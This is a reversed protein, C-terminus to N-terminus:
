AGPFDQISLEVAISQRESTLLGLPAVGIIAPAAGPHFASLLGDEILLIADSITMSGIEAVGDLDYVEFWDWLKDSLLEIEPSFWLGRRLRGDEGRKFPPPCRKM